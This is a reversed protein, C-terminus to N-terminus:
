NLESSPFARAQRHRQRGILTGFRGDRKQLKRPSGAVRCPSEKCSSNPKIGDFSVALENVECPVDCARQLTTGPQKLVCTLAKFNTGARAM